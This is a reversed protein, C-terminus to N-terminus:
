GRYFKKVKEIVFIIQDEVMEPYIPLSIIQNSIKESNPCDGKKYGLDAFCEQLHLPLPYYIGTSIHNSALFKQLEERKDTLIAYNHYVHTGFEIDNPVQVFEKFEENYRHAIERRRNNKKDIHKLKVDLIAAQIADLRSNIGIFKHIYKGIAGHVRLKQLLDFLAADKTTILGGDGYGGLNKTPFFSFCGIVGITGVKKGNYEAGIAQCADEIIHLNYKQAIELIPKMDQPKGFLHVLIIAKTKQNIKSEIIAPDINFTSMEIDVFVPKAGVRAICGATAFFTFPTTIVEDGKGIDLAMLAMLLADTGSAVGLANQGLYNGINKEFQGLVPGLIFQGSDIVDFIAKDIEDKLELYELKLNIFPIEM